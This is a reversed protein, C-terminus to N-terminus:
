ILPWPDVFRFGRMYRQLRAFDRANNTILTAGVERCAAAIQADAVLTAAMAASGPHRGALDALARGAQWCAQFSTAIVRSRHVYAGILADIAGQQEPTRAGARLEMAVVGCLAVRGGARGLFRKLLDMRDRDRLADIYVSSDIAFASAM